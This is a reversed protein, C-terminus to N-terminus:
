EQLLDCCAVSFYLRDYSVVVLLEIGIFHVVQFFHVFEKFLLKGLSFWSSISSRLLGMVLVSISIIILFRGSFLLGPGSPKM